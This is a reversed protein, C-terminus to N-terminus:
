RTSPELLLCLLFEPFSVIYEPFSEPCEPWPCPICGAFPHLPGFPHQLAPAVDGQYIDKRNSGLSCYAEKSNLNTPTAPAALFLIMITLSTRGRDPLYSQLQQVACFPENISGVGLLSQSPTVMFSLFLNWNLQWM